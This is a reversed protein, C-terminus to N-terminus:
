ARRHVFYKTAETENIPQAETTVNNTKALQLQMMEIRWIRKAAVALGGLIWFILKLRYHMYMPGMFVAALFAIMGGLAGLSIASLYKDKLRTGRYAEKLFSGLFWLFFILGPIGAECAIRLYENHVPHWFPFLHFSHFPYNNLGVGFIPHAELIMFSIDIMLKRDEADGGREFRQEIIDWFVYGIVLIAIIVVLIAKLLKASLKKRRMLVLVMFFISIVLGAWSSRSLSFFLGGMAVLTIAGYFYKYKRTKVFIFLSIALPLLLILHAGLRNPGFHTGVVRSIDSVMVDMSEGLRDLGLPGGKVKQALGIIGQIGIGILLYDVLIRLRDRTIVKNTVYLYFIFAKIEWFLAMSGIIQSIAFLVGFTSWGIMYLAPKFAGITYLHGKQFGNTEVLWAGILLFLFIDSAFIVRTGEYFGAGLNYPILFVFAKLILPEYKKLM